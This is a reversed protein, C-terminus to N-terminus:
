TSLGYVVILLMVTRCIKIKVNKSLLSSPLINQVSYCGNSSMLQNDPVTFLTIFFSSSGFLLVLQTIEDKRRSSREEPNNRPSYPYNRVSKAPCGIPEM